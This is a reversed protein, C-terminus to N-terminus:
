RMVISGGDTASFSIMTYEVLGDTFTYRCSIYWSPIMYATDLPADGTSDFDTKSPYGVLVSSLRIAYVEVEKVGIDQQGFSREIRAKALALAQDAGIIEVNDFLTQGVDYYKYWYLFSVGSDDVYISLVGTYVGGYDPVDRQMGTMGENYHVPLGANNLVYLFNWGRSLVNVATGQEFLCAREAKDLQWGRIGLDALVQDSKTQAQERTLDIPSRIEAGYLREMEADGLLYSERYVMGGARQFGFIQQGAGIIVSYQTGDQEASFTARKSLDIDSLDYSGNTQLGPETQNPVWKANPLFYDIMRRYDDLTFAIANCQRVGYGTAQPIVVDANVRVSVGNDFKYAPEDIRAPSAAQQFPSKVMSDLLQQETRWQIPAATSDPEEAVGAASEGQTADNKEQEVPIPTLTQAGQGPQCATTFAGIGLALALVLSLAIVSKASTKRAFVGRVRREM